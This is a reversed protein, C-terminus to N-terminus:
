KVIQFFETFLNANNAECDQRNDYMGEPWYSLQYGRKMVEEKKVDMEEQTCYVFGTAHAKGQSVRVRWCREKSKDCSVLALTIIALAIVLIKKM